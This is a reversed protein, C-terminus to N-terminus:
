KDKNYIESFLPYEKSLADEIVKNKKINGQVIALKDLIFQAKRTLRVQKPRTVVKEGQKFIVDKNYHSM